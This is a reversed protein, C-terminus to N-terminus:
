QALTDLQKAVALPKQEPVPFRELGTGTHEYFDEFPDTRQRAGHQDVTSGKNHFTQKMWFCATSSNLLGLLALHDDLTADTPLIIIPAHRNYLNSGVCHVFHNHTTIAAFTIQRLSRFRHKFFMSYEFWQLGRQIQSQGYAVRDCLQRRYPWFCRKTSSALEAELSAQNYPWLAAEVQLVLWDRVNEGTIHPRTFREEVGLRIATKKSVLFVDDDRTVAGFGLDSIIARLEVSGSESIREQLDAAGGGGISWPHSGFIGRSTDTASTFADQSGARDIHNVISQWVLGHAADEPTGPEGKIGLVARVTETVPKRSRGFLIVTPTGHGPIYAGSTDIVHTLEVKPFFDGILKKGFERKMFSNSTIMGIYGCGGSSEGQQPATAGIQRIM